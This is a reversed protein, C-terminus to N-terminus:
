EGAPSNHCSLSVNETQFLKVTLFLIQQQGYFWWSCRLRSMRVAQIMTSVMLSASSSCNWGGTLSHSAASFCKLVKWLALLSLSSNADRQERWSCHCGTLAAPEEDWQECISIQMNRSVHCFSPHPRSCCILIERRRFSPEEMLQHQGRMLARRSEFASWYCCNTGVSDMQKRLLFKMMQDLLIM